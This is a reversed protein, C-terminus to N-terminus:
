ALKRFCNTVIVSRPLITVKDESSYGGKFTKVTGFSTDFTKHDTDPDSPM